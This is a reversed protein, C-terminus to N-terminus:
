VRFGLGKHVRFGIFGLCYVRSGACFGQAVGPGRPENAPLKPERHLSEGEEM